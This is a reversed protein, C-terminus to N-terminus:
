EQEERLARDRDAGGVRHPRPDARHAREEHADEREPVGRARRAEEAHREDRGADDAEADPSPRPENRRVAAASQAISVGMGAVMYGGDVFLTQGTIYGSDEHALFAAAHAIEGPEGYRAMPITRMYDARMEATHAGRALPTDVPGPAVANATIGYPGLEMAIQGVLHILAAKATGYATRAFGARAGSISAIAVLRGACGIEVLDRAALQFITFGATLNVSLAREFTERDADLFPAIPAIGASHVVVGVPGIARVTEHYAARIGGEDAVDCVIGIGDLEAARESVAEASDLLVVRRGQEALRRAIAFGLAGAGGTVLATAPVPGPRHPAVAIM